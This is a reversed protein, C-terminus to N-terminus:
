WGRYGGARLSGTWSLIARGGNFWFDEKENIRWSELRGWLM